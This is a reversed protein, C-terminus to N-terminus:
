RTQRESPLIVDESQSRWKRGELSATCAEVVKAKPQKNLEANVAEHADKHEQSQRAEAVEKEAVGKVLAKKQERYKSASQPNAKACFDLIGEVKGFTDNTFPLKALALRPILFAASLSLIRVIKM